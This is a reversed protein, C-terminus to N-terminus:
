QVVIYNYVYSTSDTPTTSTDITFFTTNRDGSFFVLLSGNANAATLLVRPNNTGYADAFTITALKGTLACGTGTTITVTGATDNGSLNVTPSTCAAAEATITTTGSVNNTIIHKGVTLSNNFTAASAVTLTGNTTGITVSLDSNTGIDITNAAAGQISVNGNSNLSIGGTGSQLVSTAAGSTSGVTTTHANATAGFSCTSGGACDITVSSASSSGIAV